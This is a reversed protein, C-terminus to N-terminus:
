VLNAGVAFVLCLGGAAALAVPSAFSLHRRKATLFDEFRQVCDGVPDFGSIRARAEALQAGCEASFYAESYSHLLRQNFLRQGVLCSSARYFEFEPDAELTPLVLACDGPDGFIFNRCVSATGACEALRQEAPDGPNFAYFGAAIGVLLALLVLLWVKAKILTIVLLIGFAARALPRAWDQSVSFYM